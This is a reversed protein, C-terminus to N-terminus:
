EQKGVACRGRPAPVGPSVKYAARHARRDRRAARTQTLTCPGPPARGKGERLCSAAQPKTHSSKEERYRSVPEQMGSETKVQIPQLKAINIEM